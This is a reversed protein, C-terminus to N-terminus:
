RCAGAAKGGAFFGKPPHTCFSHGGGPNRKTRAEEKKRESMKIKIWQIGKYGRDEHWKNGTVCLVFKWAEPMRIRLELLRNAASGRRLGSSWLGSVDLGYGTATGVSGHQSLAVSLPCHLTELRLTGTANYVVFVLTVCGLLRLSECDVGYSRWVEYILPM